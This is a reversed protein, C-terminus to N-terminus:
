KQSLLDDFFSGRGVPGPAEELENVNVNVHDHDHANVAVAVHVHGYAVGPLGRQITLPWTATAM